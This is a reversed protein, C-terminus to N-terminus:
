LKSDKWEQPLLKEDVNVKLHECTMILKGSEKDFMEGRLQSMKKGINLIECKIGVTKGEPAPLLYTCNLMRSVGLTFWFKPSNVLHLAMTTAVDFLTSGAGGHLVGSFNLYRNHVTFDFYLTPYPELTASVPKLDHLLPAAWADPMEKAMEVMMSNKIRELLEEESLANGDGSGKEKKQSTM